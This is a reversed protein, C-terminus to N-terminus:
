TVGRYWGILGIGTFILLMGMWQGPTIREGLVLWAAIVVGVYQVGAFSTAINLPLWHMLAFYFCVSLGFCTMAFIVRWQLVSGMSLSGTASTKLLLNAAVTFGLMGILSLVVKM